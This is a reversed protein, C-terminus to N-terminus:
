SEDAKTESSLWRSLPVVGVVLFLSLLCMAFCGFYFELFRVGIVERDCCRRGGSRRIRIRM